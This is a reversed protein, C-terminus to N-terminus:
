EMSFIKPYENDTNMANKAIMFGITLIGM